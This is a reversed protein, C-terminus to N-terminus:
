SKLGVRGLELVKYHLVCSGTLDQKSELESGEPVNGEKM